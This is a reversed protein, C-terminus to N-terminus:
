DIRGTWIIKRYERTWEDCDWYESTYRWNGYWYWKLANFLGLYKILQFANM